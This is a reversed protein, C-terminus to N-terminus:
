KKGYETPLCGMYKKFRAAFYSPTNYGVMFSIESVTYKGEKLLQCARNFRIKHIFDIASKGTIAKLKLHLNSRSMNLEKAFQETSFEVNDMNKEIVAIAKRLLEEDMSNNALKEPEVETTNSYHEFARHRTRLVNQIKAKLIPMSFPKPIYDDAGVQFGELQYKTDVKASLMYVPIHCTRINQKIVKCLKVGDMVPMMIDTIVLDVTEEKLIDLAKQGNDAELLNFDSSLGSVLYQRLELNDDVILITGRKEKESDALTSTDLSEEDDVYVDHANTYYARQEKVGEEQALLEESTYVSKDQPIYISFTSGEGVKSDLTIRGHHLDVLRQVLSLGIGSGEHGSEAQYFREFIRKQKEEPIGVGTDIVQLVLNDNEKYLRVTICEGKGTYKFANSLLNNVILDLYTEDFLLEEDQLETYLNYDIDRRKSLNEYNLFSNLVKKYANGYVPQLEFIGLEARRYDMLQNVLHLLRNTNRQIYALKEHEWHGKVREILEQLPAVILTLPTRLEHSIDIYFRIKMQNVEERKEKDLRELRIEAQMSKRQWFFRFVVFLLLIVSLAFVLLAWWTCYWVPLVRIHLAAVEKSWKGDNNAAKLLFTYDGAPLNSYSVPSIDDQKYWEENYGELKYAFTNHMGAIYNSVVFSISFSNQSSKLTIHDVYEINEKLIGTNDNPLVEKNFVFLKNIVPKPTYPNDILIEPRFLTVGNIGGFLMAGSSVRCYSGANFQNSQLGDIVTFNRLKRSNPNFCSLGQNTSIWLRGYGDELIGYVVNSPLGDDTTYQLLEKDGERLAFLGNRTGVWIYGSLSEHICNVFSQKLNMSISFDTNAQVATDLQDYVSLGMKGGVWIRGKSDRYLLLNYKQIPRGEVDKDIVTFHKKDVDFHLLYDLSAIWLGGKGDSVISYIHNSPLDSNQHNYFEKKGTKRHLVMMGGAHAGVYVKDTAEDVYVTKIDKFPVGDSTDPNFLYNKYTKTASDYFNLGGDSTGMWLNKNKDEVICSVVNDSLSNYFPIHKIQQFRNCLPHYYNLGGWYTGLWMGGQSDKFICRVSNQSLVGIRIISNEISAFSDNGEEYINLGSYTGVWLRNEQDLALSRVYNSILGTTKDEYRYNRLKETKLDYLYLGSGETAIWVRNLMRCLIGNIQTKAPLEVLKKLSGDRLFYTYVADEAGIYVYEGQKVLTSPKLSHLATSLTDNMFHGGQVDFLLIGETTGLMLWDKQLPVINTISMNQEKRNYYFNTFENQRHNYLSLGDRTAVWVRNDDDIAVCRTIDNAISKPNKYQHRYVTFNYGDYKNLGDYTAFWLNGEKDQNIGFITSHSLGEELGIHTFRMGDIENAFGINAFLIGCLMLLLRFIKM